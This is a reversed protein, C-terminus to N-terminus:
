LKQGLRLSIRGNKESNFSQTKARFHKYQDAYDKDAMRLYTEPVCLEQLPYCLVTISVGYLECPVILQEGGPM